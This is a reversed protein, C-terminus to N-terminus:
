PQGVLHPPSVSASRVQSSHLPAAFTFAPLPSGAESPNSVIRESVPSHFAVGLHSNGELQRTPLRHLKSGPACLLLEPSRLSQVAWKFGSDPGLMRTLPRRQPLPDSPVVKKPPGGDSGFPSLTTAARTADRRAPASTSFCGGRGPRFRTNRRGTQSSWVLAYPASRTSYTGGDSRAAGSTVGAVIAASRIGAFCSTSSEAADAAHSAFARLAV